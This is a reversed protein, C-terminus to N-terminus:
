FKVQTKLLGIYIKVPDRMYRKVYQKVTTLYSRDNMICMENELLFNDILEDWFDNISTVQQSLQAEVRSFRDEPPQSCCLCLALRRMRM